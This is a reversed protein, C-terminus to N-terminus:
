IGRSALVHDIEVRAERSLLEPLMDADRADALEGITSIKYGKLIRATRLHLQLDDIPCTLLTKQRAVAM